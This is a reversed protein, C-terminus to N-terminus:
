ITHALVTGQHAPNRPPFRQSHNILLGRHGSEEASFGRAPPKIGERAVLLRLNILSKHHDRANGATSYESLVFNRTDLLGLPQARFIFRPEFNRDTARAFQGCANTWTSTRLQM